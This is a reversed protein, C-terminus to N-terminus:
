GAAARLVLMFGGLIAGSIACCALFGVTDERRWKMLEWSSNPFLKTHELRRGDVAAGRVNTKAVANSRQAIQVM